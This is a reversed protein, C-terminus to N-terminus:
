QIGHKKEIKAIVEKLRAKMYKDLPSLWGTLPKLEPLAAPGIAELAECASDIVGWGESRILDVLAPVAAPGIAGLAACASSIVWSDKSRRILDALAPVAESAAPGIAGLADCARKIVSREFSDVLALVAESADPGIGRLAIGRLAECASKIVERDESRRILDVLAPVAESAAPVIAELAECASWIAREDERILDAVEKSIFEAVLALGAKSAAPGIGKLRAELVECARLIVWRKSRRIFDALAPVAESAAPGIGRLAECASKIVERDESRRILDALAPVAAPGIAGLAACASWIVWSDKSRRILDVLAPVAESAAPGIGRLAECASKIVERDESRRILDALAPVAESAAPGIAGLADCAKKQIKWDPNSFDSIARQVRLKIGAESSPEVDQPWGCYDCVDHDVPIEKLCFICTRVLSAGCQCFRADRQAVRGCNVCVKEGPLPIYLMRNIILVSVTGCYQCIFQYGFKLEKEPVNSTNGCSPCRLAVIEVSSM